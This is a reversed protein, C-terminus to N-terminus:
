ELKVKVKTVLLLIMSIMGWSILAYKFDKLTAEIYYPFKNSYNHFKGGTRLDKIQYDIRSKRLGYNSIKTGLISEYYIATVRDTPEVYINMLIKGQSNTKPYKSTDSNYSFSGFNQLIFLGIFSLIFAVLVGGLLKKSIKIEKKM